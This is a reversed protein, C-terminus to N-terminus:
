KIEVVESHWITIKHIFINDDTYFGNCKEVLSFYELPSELHSADFRKSAKKGNKLYAIFQHTNM